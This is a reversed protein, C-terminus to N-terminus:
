ALIFFLPIGLETMLSTIWKVESATLAVSRYEAETSSRAVGKLKKSCWSIPQKGLYVIYAGTSSYDDQNGAWDADSYAHLNLPSTRSFFLGKNATGNLYRLVRKVAEFHSTTPCHMYQSLRNVAFAIDPRTLLLYQLSGVITRFESPDDLVSGDSAVLRETSCMPTSVPKCHTMNTKVLLDTIYKTQTLYLGTADRHAEMGLFYSLNDLDKLSFRAALVQIIRSVEMSNNGTILIDDVYVLIYVRVGNKNLVFLSADALSNVFGISLLFDRLANYWARPAQKLGYIAKRLRCVHDPRDKDIFGPPQMMYVEENLPGQLFAHNVDLQKLPWDRAVAVGLVLRITAHKIVPSFTEHFDVGPRQHFGKAVLRAKFRDISGNPLRKIRYVWRCGVINRALARDVLDWTHNQTQADIESGMAQRWRKDKLAQSDNRPEIETLLASFGYKPNPKIINNKSRTIMPHRVPAPASPPIPPSPATPPATQSTVELIESVTPALSPSSSSEEIATTINEDLTTSVNTPSPASSPTQLTAPPWSFVPARSAIPFSSSSEISPSRISSTLSSFPFVSEHFIVHRSVYIRSTVVDLCLFASQTLSYGLFVCPTSRPSFKTTGYPRIWPYCLCGFTRLKTYNPSTKFLLQFPSSQDLTPTTLRNILYVAAQFSYSWYSQPIGAHHLLTLGTEVIHRHKREAIGNHEPTHPPTTLHSIGKSSLYQRLGIFEGGNDSYLTTIKSEFRNEVLAQFLPFIQAVQSKNKMPYLWSYRTFHDVFIVYYKYGDVSIIPSSWVDSFIIELPKSSSITTNFFPLKHSKNIFCSNCPIQSKSSIPLSFTSIIHHLTQSHPHGLRSHWESLSTKHCSFATIPSSSTPWEYVGNNARGTLLTEGTRLDKVQFDFPCLQVMVNNTKCLKNASILNKRITPVCLINTLSLPRSSTSLHSSGTHTIPLARGDGILVDDGGTYPSHLSLTSLDSAIHHSAASDVLWPSIDSPSSTTLHAQPNWQPSQLQHPWPSSPGRFPTPPVSSSFQPCRRASHGLVGCIQCKGLYGGRSQQNNRYGGRSAQNGRFGGRQPRTQTNNVTVPVSSGSIEETAIIDNERNLLKEHLEEVSIPIDRGKVMEVIARFDEGLGGTIMDLLDEHPLPSGLLALHDTKALIGRMYETISQTGKTIRKLQQKLQNIHGRSPNGYTNSLTLWIDRSTLARAVMPQINLTLTGILSSYLMRDQRKWITFAPNTSTVGDANTIQQPPSLDEDSIFVHLEHAELLARVQLRWTLFNSPTLKTIGSMNLSILSCKPDSPNFVLASDAAAVSAEIAM